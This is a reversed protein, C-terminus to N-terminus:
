APVMNVEAPMESWEEGQLQRGGEKSHRGGWQKFFFPVGAEQCQDRIETVWEEKMPRADHGSEGGVIVWDIGELDLDPLPGILPELSLFRVSAEVERLDSIRAVVDQNEVSTGLWVNPAPYTSDLSESFRGRAAEEWRELMNQPEMYEAMRQPRKTLIQFVHNPALLMAAFVKDIFEFPVAPHFLDSMSDVFVLRRKKWKLPDELRDDHLHVVGTWDTGESTRRTTGDYGNGLGDFRRAMNMAYCMDCGESVRSCGTTPNWTADTWEISSSTAM